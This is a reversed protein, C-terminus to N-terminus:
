FKGGLIANAELGKLEQFFIAKKREVEALMKQYEAEQGKTKKLLQDKSQKTGNLSNKQLANEANLEQLDQEKQELNNKNNELSDKELQLEDTLGVIQDSVSSAYQGQRFFDSLDRNKILTAVLNEQDQQHVFLILRTLMEKKHRIDEILNFIDGETSTIELKTKDIKKSTISIQTELRKFENQLIAIDRKLSEAKAQESAISTRYQSAQNELEDIQRQLEAIREQETQAQVHKINFFVGLSVGFIIIFIFFNRKM